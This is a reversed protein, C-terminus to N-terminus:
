NIVSLNSADATVIETVIETAQGTMVDRAIETM